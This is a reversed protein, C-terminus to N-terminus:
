ALTPNEELYEIVVTNGLVDGLRIGSDLACLLYVELAILPLGVVIFLVWLWPTAALLVALLFPFNRVLSGRFSCAIGTPDDIVRLGIIRKGISQGTGLGDKFAILAAAAFIGLPPWLARGLYFVAIVVVLDIAKASFRNFLSTYREGLLISTRRFFPKITEM